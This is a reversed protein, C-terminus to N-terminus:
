NNKIILTYYNPVVGGASLPMHPPSEWFFDIKGNEMITRILKPRSFFRNPLAPFRENNSPYQLFVVDDNSEVMAIMALVTYRSIKQYESLAVYPEDLYQLTGSILCIDYRQNKDAEARWKIEKTEQPSFLECFAPKEIITWDLVLTPCLRKLQFYFMGFSGGVDLVRVPKSIDLTTNQDFLVRM